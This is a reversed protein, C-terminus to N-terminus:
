NMKMRAACTRPTAITGVPPRSIEASLLVIMRLYEEEHVTLNNRLSYIKLNRMQCTM